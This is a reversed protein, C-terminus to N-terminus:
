HCLRLQGKALIAVAGDLADLVSAYTLPMREDTREDILQFSVTGFTVVPQIHFCDGTHQHFVMAGLTSRLVAIPGLMRHERTLPLKNNLLHFM